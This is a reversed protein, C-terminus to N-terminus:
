RSGMSRCGHSYTLWGGWKIFRDGSGNGNRTSCGRREGWASYLGLGGTAHQCARNAEEWQPHLFWARNFGDKM